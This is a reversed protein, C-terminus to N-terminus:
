GFGGLGLALDIAAPDAAAMPGSVKYATTRQGPVMVLIVTELGPCAPDGCDIESVSLVAGADLGLRERVHSRIAEVRAKEEPSRRRVWGLM